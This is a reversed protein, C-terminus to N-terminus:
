QVKKYYITGLYVATEANISLRIAGNVTIWLTHLVIIWLSHIHITLQILQNNSMNQVNLSPWMFSDRIVPDNLQNSGRNAQQRGSESRTQDPGTSSTMTDQLRTRVADDSDMWGPCHVNSSQLWKVLSATDHKLVVYCHTSLLDSDSMNNVFSVSLYALSPDHWTGLCSLWLQKAGAELILTLALTDTQSTSTSIHIINLSALRSIVQM